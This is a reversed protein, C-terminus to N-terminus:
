PQQSHKQENPTSTNPSADDTKMEHLSVIHIVDCQMKLLRDVRDVYASHMPYHQAYSMPWTAHRAFEWLWESCLQAM